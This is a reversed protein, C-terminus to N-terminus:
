LQINNIISNISEFQSKITDAYKQTEQLYSNINQVDLDSITLPKNYNLLENIVNLQAEIAAVRLELEDLRTIIEEM